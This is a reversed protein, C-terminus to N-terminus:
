VLQLENLNELKLGYEINLKLIESELLKAESLPHMRHKDSWNEERVPLFVNKIILNPYCEYLYFIDYQMKKIAQEDGYTKKPAYLINLYLPSECIVFDVGGKLPKEVRRIMESCIQSQGWGWLEKTWILETAFEQVLAVSKGLIKLDYCLKFATTTKGSCPAGYLNVLTTM